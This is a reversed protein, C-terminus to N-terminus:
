RGMQMATATVNLTMDANFNQFCTSEDEHSINLIKKKEEEEERRIYKNVVAGFVRDSGLM